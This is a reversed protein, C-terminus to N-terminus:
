LHILSLFFICIFSRKENMKSNCDEQIFVFREKFHNASWLRSRYPMYCVSKQALLLLSSFRKGCHLSMYDEWFRTFSSYFIWWGTSSIFLAFACFFCRLVLQESWVGLCKAWCCVSAVRSPLRYSAQSSADSALDESTSWRYIGREQKSGPVTNDLVFAILFSVVMNMSLLGNMAFDLQFSYSLSSILEMLITASIVLFIYSCYNM